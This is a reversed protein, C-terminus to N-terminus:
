LLEHEALKTEPEASGPRPQASSSAGSAPYPGPRATASTAGYRARNREILAAHEEATLRERGEMAGFPVSLSIPRPIDHRVFCAFETHDRHKRMGQLFEPECQMERGFAAADKASLGGVMKIATSAMVAARLRQDFQDLNQHAIILGVKYKRAQNLLQEVSEDFYDQAEDIYVFTSRRRDDPIAAREQAAQAILAIFFRGLIECGEQKLLDKATNILIVSGRNMAEFLDLKNHENAFMRELVGNSLVGWLRTLIQQRTDDFAKSFFQSEFFHRSTPDLTPLHPRVAEPEEMFARLTHVTAGPVAMLLRALYRFIVGQRQTLDAGLLAGFLYEYLAIAGNVLKERDAPGYRELRDLGFDFLNLAPPHEIDNPDILVLRDALSSEAGPSFEALHMITRIMDGQSDIVVLSGKGDRLADLDRLMFHQLLQTKGHGSGGVVHTHEFRRAFPIPCPFQATLIPLFPTREFLLEAVELVPFKRLLESPMPADELKSKGLKARGLIFSAREIRFFDYTEFARNDLIRVFSDFFPGPHDILDLLPAYGIAEEESGGALVGHPLSRVFANLLAVVGDQEAEPEQCTRGAADRRGLSPFAQEARDDWVKLADFRFEGM